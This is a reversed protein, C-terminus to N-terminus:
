WNPLGFEARTHAHNFLVSYISNLRLCGNGDFERLLQEAEADTEVVPVWDRLNNFQLDRPLRWEREHTWDAFDETNHNFPVVRFCENPPWYSGDTRETYIATRAGLHWLEVKDIAIGFGRRKSPSTRILEPLLDGPLESFSVTRGFNYQAQPTAALQRSSLIQRLRDFSQLRREQLPLDADPRILHVLHTTLDSRQNAAQYAENM